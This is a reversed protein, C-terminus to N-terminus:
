GAKEEGAPPLVITDYQCGNWLFFVAGRDDRPSLAAGTDALIAEMPVQFLRSLAYMNDLTPMSQGSQWKYIAQPSTFGFYQQLQRVTLGRETRLRYINRGTAEPDLVPYATM